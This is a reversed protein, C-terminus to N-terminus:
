ALTTHRQRPDLQVPIAATSASKLDYSQKNTAAAVPVESVQYRTIAHANVLVGGEAKLHKINAFGSSRVFHMHM